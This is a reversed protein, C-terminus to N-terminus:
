EAEAQARVRVLAEPTLIMGGRDGEAV